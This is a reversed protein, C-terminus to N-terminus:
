ASSVQMPHLDNALYRIAAEVDLIQRAVLALVHALLQLDQYETSLAFSALREQWRWHMLVSRLTAPVTSDHVWCGERELRM